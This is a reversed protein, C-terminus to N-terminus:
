ESETKEWTWGPVRELADIRTSLMTSKKTRHERKQRQVWESLQRSCTSSSIHSGDGHTEYYDLLMNYKINWAANTRHWIFGVEDLLDIQDQTLKGEKRNNRQRKVWGSLTKDPDSRLVSSHGNLHYFDVLSQYQDGWGRIHSNYNSNRTKTKVPPATTITSTSPISTNSSVANPTGDEDEDDGFEMGMSDFDHSSSSSSSPVVYSSPFVLNDPTQYHTVVVMKDDDDGDGNKMKTKKIVRKVVRQKKIVRKVVRQKKTNKSSNQQKATTASVQHKSSLLNKSSFIKQNIKESLINALMDAEDSNRTRIMNKKAAVKKKKAVVGKKKMVVVTNKNKKQTAISSKKVNVNNQKKTSTTTKEFEPFLNKQVTTPPKTPPPKSKVTAGDTMISTTNTNHYFSAMNPVYKKKKGDDDYYYDGDDEDDNSNDNDGDHLANLIVTAVIVEDVGGEDIDEDDYEDNDYEDNDDDDDASEVSFEESDDVDAFEENKDKDDNTFFPLAGFSDHNNFYEQDFTFTSAASTPSQSRESCERKFQPPPPMMMADDDDDEVIEEVIDETNDDDEINIDDVIKIAKDANESLSAPISDDKKISKNSLPLIFDVCDDDDDDYDDDYDDNTFIFTPMLNKISTPMLNKIPPPFHHLNNNSNLITQLRIKDSLYPNYDDDDVFDDDEKNVIGSSRNYCDLIADHLKPTIYSPSMNFSSSTMTTTSTSSNMKSKKSKSKKSKSKSDRHCRQTISKISNM